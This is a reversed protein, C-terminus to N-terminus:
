RKKIFAKAVVVASAAVLVGLGVAGAVALRQESEKM